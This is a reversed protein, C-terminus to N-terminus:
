HLAGALDGLCQSATRIHRADLAVRVDLIEKRLRGSSHLRRRLRLSRCRDLRPDIVRVRRLDPRESERPLINNDRARIGTM